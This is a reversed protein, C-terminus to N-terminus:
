PRPIIRIYGNTIITTCCDSQVEVIGSFESTNDILDRATATILTGININLGRTDIEFEFLNQTRNFIIGTGDNTYTETGGNKDDASGEIGEFFFEHGEGFSGTFGGPLPNPSTGNDSLFIEVASGMPAYGIVTLISDQESWRASKFVPFNILTNSGSDGDGNDNSTVGDYDLDIGLAANLFMSNRSIRNRETANNSVGIAADDNYYIKNGVIDSDSVAMSPDYGITADTTAGTLFIGRKGNGVNSVGDFGLGIHNGAIITHNAMSSIRIGDEQNGSIINRELQDRVGDGNTGVLTHTFSNLDLGHNLNGLANNGTVDTGICNGMILNDTGSGSVQLRIGTGNGSILNKENTDEDGDSDTGLINNSSSGQLQIGFNRNGIAVTGDGNTGLYNNSVIQNDSNLIRIGDNGNGSSINRYNDSLGDALNGNFGIVNIGEADRIFIGNFRNSIAYSATKDLGVINGAVLVNSINRLQIGQQSDVVLNGENEDNINDGNTGIFSDTFRQLNIGVGSNGMAATGDSTSGIYNGWIFATHRATTGTITNRFDNIVMGSITTNNANIILGDITSSNGSIVITNTRGAITGQSSGEQTYGTVHTYPDSISPLVTTPTITHVQAGPIMFISHETETPKLFSVGTTPTDEQDLNSNDLENSNIIFQRLSGQGSNNENIITDFNYGFDVGSLDTSGITIDSISHATTNLTYLSSLNNNSTNPGADIKDPEAGGVENTVPISGTNRYTQVAITTQGTSNSSRNSSITETVIRITHNGTGVDTLTYTGDADTITSSVYTGSSDYLEVIVGSLDIDGPNWGSNQASTNSINYNRGAGGGYNIDEYITGTVNLNRILDALGNDDSDLDLSYPSNNPVSYFVSSDAIEEAIISSYGNYSLFVLLFYLSM